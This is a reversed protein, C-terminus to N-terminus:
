LSCAMVTSQALPSLPRRWSALLCPSELSPQSMWVAAARSWWAMSLSVTEQSSCWCIALLLMKPPFKAGSATLWCCAPKQRSCARHAPSRTEMQTIITHYQLLDSSRNVIHINYTQAQNCHVHQDCGLWAEASTTSITCLCCMCLCCWHWSM